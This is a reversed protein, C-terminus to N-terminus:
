LAHVDKTAPDRDSQALLTEITDVAAAVDDLVRELSARAATADPAWADVVHRASICIRLAAVADDTRGGWGAPQGIMCHAASDDAGDILARYLARCEGLSLPRGARELTFAFITPHAFEDDSDPHPQPPLLRLSPSAAVIRAIGDGLQAVATRRFYEPVEHYARLEALAAEWRLWQGFNPLVPFQARLAGWRKPWDSRSAYDALGPAIQKLAAIAHAFRPPVLLAGSFPPGALYKSGTLLVLDGRDLCAAIRRPGLRMQCADVVIQVRGPWRAAIEAVCRDSPARMGLKSCDMVELMVRGGQAVLSEVTELVDADIASPSRIGGDHDRLRVAISAVPGLGGVPAGRGVAVGNSSRESFHAGRSTHVTGTGTQDAAVILTTLDPGLLARTLALAQLQADTGSASFVVEASSQGLGLLAKLEDRMAEVRDDFCDILGHLMASSMLANRAREAADYGRDSITTATCSSFSPIEPCPLPSCGYANRRTARDVDLRADGGCTLIQELPSFLERLPSPHRHGPEIWFGRDLIARPPSAPNSM